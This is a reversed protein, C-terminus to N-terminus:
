TRGMVFLFDGLYENQEVLAYKDRHFAKIEPPGDQTNPNKDYNMITDVIYAGQLLAGTKNMFKTFNRLFHNSGHGWAHRHVTGLGWVRSISVSISPWSSFLTTM